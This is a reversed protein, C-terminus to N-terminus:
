VREIAALWGHSGRAAHGGAGNLEYTTERIYRVTWGEAFTARIEAQTVRRPGWSGPEKESWCLLYFTGGRPLVSALSESFAGREADSLTHFMGSDIVTDYQTGLQELELANWADFQVSLERQDAKARAQEIARPAADIGRVELGRGALYLANEGTGCGVDLVRGVIEGQEALRVIEGQPRGIDWPPTETHKEM